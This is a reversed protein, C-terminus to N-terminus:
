AHKKGSLRPFRLLHPPPTRSPGDTRILKRGKPTEVTMQVFPLCIRGEAVARRVMRKKRVRQQRAHLEQFRCDNWLQQFQRNEANRFLAARAISRAEDFHNIEQLGQVVEGIIEIDDPALEVARRVYSLGEDVAGHRLAFLGADCHYMPEEPELELARRYHELALDRDGRRDDEYAAAMLYHYYADQPAFALAAALHRRASAFKRKKLLLEALHYHTDEAIDGPLDRLRTLSAFIREARDDVGLQHFRRGEALLHECLNLTRSM